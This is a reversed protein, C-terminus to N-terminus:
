KAGLPVKPFLGLPGDEIKESFDSWDDLSVVLVSDEPIRDLLKSEAVLVGAFGVIVFLSLISRLRFKM